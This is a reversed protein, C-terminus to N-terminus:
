ITVTELRRALAKQTEEVEKMHAEVGEMPHEEEGQSAMHAKMKERMKKFHEHAEAHKGEDMLRGMTEYDAEMGEYGHAPKDAMHEINTDGHPMAGGTNDAMSAVNSGKPMTGGEDALRKKEMNKLATGTFSMNQRSESEIQALKVKKLQAAVQSPDSAKKTGVQGVPVVPQRADYSKFTAELVEDTGKALAVIDVKKLEAPTVKGLARLKSFRVSINMKRQAFRAKEQDEKLLKVEARLRALEKASEGGKDDAMKKEHEDHEKEMRSLDEDKAESLQKDADEESLGKHEMLHKKCKAYKAHMEKYKGYSMDLEGEGLNKSLLSAHAAAPFPTVSVENLKNNKELGISLHTWRGDKAKEVNDKGIFVLDGYLAVKDVGDEDKFSGLQIPGDVRGITDSAKPSHDLQVPVQVKPGGGKFLRSLKALSSNYNDAISKLDEAALTVEGDMSSFTGEYVLLAKRRLRSGDGEEAGEDTIHGVQLRIPKKM